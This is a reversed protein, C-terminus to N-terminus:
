EIAWSPWVPQEADVICRQRAAATMSGPRFDTSSTEFRLALVIAVGRPGFVRRNQRLHGEQEDGPSAAAMTMPGDPLPLLESRSYTRPTGRAAKPPCADAESPRSGDIRESGRLQGSKRLESTPKTKWSWQRSAATSRARFREPESAQLDHRLCCDGRRLGTSAWVVAPVSISCTPRPSRISCRGPSSEPPSFCRTAIARASSEADAVEHEAVLRGSIEVVCRRGRHSRQQHIEVAALLVNQDDDSVARAECCLKWDAELHRVLTQSAHRWCHLSPPPKRFTESNM